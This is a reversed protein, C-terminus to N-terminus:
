GSSTRSRWATSGRRRWYYKGVSLSAKLRFQHFGLNRFLKEYYHFLASAYGFSRERLRIQEIYVVRLRRGEFYAKWGSRGDRGDQFFLTM